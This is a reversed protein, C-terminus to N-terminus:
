RFVIAHEDFNSKGQYTSARDYGRGLTCPPSFVTGRLPTSGAHVDYMLELGARELPLVVMYEQCSQHEMCGALSDAAADSM